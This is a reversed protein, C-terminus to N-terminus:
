SPNKLIEKNRMLDKSCLELKWDKKLSGVCVRNTIKKREKKKEKWKWFQLIPYFEEFEGLDLKAATSLLAPLPRLQVLPPDSCLLQRRPQASVISNYRWCSIRMRGTKEPRQVWVEKLGHHLCPQCSELTAAVEAHNAKHANESHSRFTQYRLSGGRWGYQTVWLVLPVIQLM